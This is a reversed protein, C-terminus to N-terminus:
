TARHCRRKKAENDLREKDPSVLTENVTGTAVCFNSTGGDARPECGCPLPPARKELLETVVCDARQLPGLRGSKDLREKDPSVLTENVTVTGPWVFTPREAMRVLSVAVRYHLPVSRSFNHSWVTPGRSLVWGVVRDSVSRARDYLWICRGRVGRKYPTRM